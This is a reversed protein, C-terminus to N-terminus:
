KERKSEVRQQPFGSRAAEDSVQWTFLFIVPSRDHLIELLHFANFASGASSPECSNKLVACPVSTARSAASLEAFLLRKKGAPSLSRFVAVLFFFSPLSTHKYM